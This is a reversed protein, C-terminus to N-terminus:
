SVFRISFYSKSNVTPQQGLQATLYTIRVPLQQDHLIIVAAGLAKAKDIELAIIHSAIRHIGQISLVNIALLQISATSLLLAFALRLELRPAGAAEMKEREAKNHRRM